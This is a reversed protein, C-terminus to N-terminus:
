FMHQSGENSGSHIVVHKEQSICFNDSFYSKKDSRIQLVSWYSPVTCDVTVTNILLVVFKM